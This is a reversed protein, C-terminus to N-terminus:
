GNEPSRWVLIDRLADGGTRDLGFRALSRNVRRARREAFAQAALPKEREVWEENIRRLHGARHVTRSSDTRGDNASVSSRRFRFDAGGSRIATSRAAVAPISGIGAHLTTEPRKPRRPQPLQRNGECASCKRAVNCRLRVPPMVAGVVTGAPGSRVNKRCDAERRRYRLRFADTRTSGASPDASPRSWPWFRGIASAVSAATYVTGVGIPKDSGYRGIWGQLSSKLCWGVV